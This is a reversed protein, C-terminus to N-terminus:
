PEHIYFAIPSKSNYMVVSYTYILLDLIGILQLHMEGKFNVNCLVKRRQM